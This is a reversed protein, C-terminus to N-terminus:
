PAFNESKARCTWRSTSRACARGCPADRDALERARDARVGVDIGRDFLVDAARESEHGDRRRLDDGAVTVGFHEVRARRQAGRDFLEGELHAVERSALNAFGFLWEGGPWFPEDAIGCLRM